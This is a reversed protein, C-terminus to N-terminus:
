PASSYIASTTQVFDRFDTRQITRHCRAFENDFDEQLDTTQLLQLVMKVRGYPYDARLEVLTGEHIELNRFGLVYQCDIIEVGGDGVEGFLEAKGLIVTDTAPGKQLEPIEPKHDAITLTLHRRAVRSIMRPKRVHVALANIVQVLLVNRALYCDLLRHGGGDLPLPSTWWKHLLPMATM